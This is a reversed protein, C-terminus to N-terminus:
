DKVDTYTGERVTRVATMVGAPYAVRKGDLTRVYTHSSTENVVEGVEWRYGGAEKVRVAVPTGPRAGKERDTSFALPSLTSVFLAVVLIRNSM